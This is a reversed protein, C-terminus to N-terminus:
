IKVNKLYFAYIFHLVFTISKNSSKKMNKECQKKTTYDPVHFNNAPSVNGYHYKSSQASM